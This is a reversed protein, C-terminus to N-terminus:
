KLQNKLHDLSATCSFIRRNWKRHPIKGIKRGYKVQDVTWGLYDAIGEDGGINWPEINADLSNEMIEVPQRNNERPEQPLRGELFMQKVAQDKPWALDILDDHRILSRVRKDLHDTIKSISKIKKTM